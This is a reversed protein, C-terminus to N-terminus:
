FLPLDVGRWGECDMFLDSGGRDPGFAPLNDHSAREFTKIDVDAAQISIQDNLM